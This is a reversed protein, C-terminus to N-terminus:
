KTPLRRLSITQIDESTPRTLVADEYGNCKVKLDYRTNELENWAFMGGADSNRVWSEGGVTQTCWGDPGASVELSNWLEEDSPHLEIKANEVPHGSEDVIRGRLKEFPKLTFTLPSGKLKFSVELFQEHYGNAVVFTHYNVEEPVILNFTGDQRSRCIIPWSGQNRPGSMALYVRLTAEPVPKGATNTIIGSIKFGKQLEFTPTQETLEAHLSPSSKIITPAYDAHQVIIFLDNPNREPSVSQWRGEADTEVISRSENFSFDGPQLFVIQAGEVPLDLENVIRGGIKESTEPTYSRPRTTSCSLLGITISFCLTTRWVIAFRLSTPM